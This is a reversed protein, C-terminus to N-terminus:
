PRVECVTQFRRAMEEFNFNDLVFQRTIEPAGPADLAASLARALAEADDAPVLAGTRPCVADRVAGVDTAVVRVGCAQVETLVRPLGERRSPLCFVDFAPAVSEIDDRHGLLRARGDLEAAEIRATLAAEEEGGGAIVCFVGPLRRMAEILVDHGKVSALRGISGIVRADRPLGLRALAAAKDGIVFRAADVGPTIVQVEAGPAVERFRAAVPQSMAIVRPRLVGVLRPTMRRHKPFADFHWADHEVHVLRSVRALRAAAGGYILPAIHHAVVAQPRLARLAAALRLPLAWSVGPERRFGHLRGRLDRLAPWANMLEEADGCLSFVAHSRFVRALDLVLTEIGGPVMKQVVHVVDIM